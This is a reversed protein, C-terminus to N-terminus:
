FRSAISNRSVLTSRIEELLTSVASVQGPWTVAVIGFDADMEKRLRRLDPIRNEGALHADDIVIREPRMERIADPLDDRAEARM